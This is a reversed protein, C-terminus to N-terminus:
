PQGNVFAALCNSMPKGWKHEFDNKVQRCSFILARFPYLEHMDPKYNINQLFWSHIRHSAEAPLTTSKVGISAPLSSMDKM